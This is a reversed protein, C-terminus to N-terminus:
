AAAIVRVTVTEQATIWDRIVRRRRYPTREAHLKGAIHAIHSRVTHVSATLIHACEVDTLGEAVLRAVETERPTLPPLRDTTM